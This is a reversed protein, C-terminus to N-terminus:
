WRVEPATWRREVCWISISGRRGIEGTLIVSEVDFITLSDNDMEEEAHTTMVYLRRRVKERMQTLPRAPMM